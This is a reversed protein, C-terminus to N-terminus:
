TLERNKQDLEANKQGKQTKEAELKKVKEKLENSEADRL